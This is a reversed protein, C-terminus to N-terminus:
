VFCLVRHALRLVCCVVCLVYCVLCLVCCVGCLVCCVVCCVSVCVCVCVCHRLVCCVVCSVCCVVCLVCCVCVCCVCCMCLAYVVVFLLLGTSPCGFMSAFRDEKKLFTELDDIGFMTACEQLIELGVTTKAVAIAIKTNAAANFCVKDIKDTNPKELAWQRWDSPIGKFAPMTENKLVAAIDALMMDSLEQISVEAQSWCSKLYTLLIRMDESLKTEFDPKGALAATMFSCFKSLADQVAALRSIFATKTQPAEYLSEFVSARPLDALEKVLHAIQAQAKNLRMVNEVVAAVEFQKISTAVVIAQQMTKGYLAGQGSGKFVDNWLVHEWM